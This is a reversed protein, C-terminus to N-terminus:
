EDMKNVVGMGPCNWLPRGTYPTNQAFSVTKKVTEYTATHRFVSKGEEAVSSETMMPIQGLYGAEDLKRMLSGHSIQSEDFEVQVVHFASSAYVNKVGPIELFMRRVETVHHDGYLAPTDFTSKQM